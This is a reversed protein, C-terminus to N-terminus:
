RSGTVYFYFKVGIVIMAIPFILRGLCGSELKAGELEPDERILQNLYKKVQRDDTQPDAEIILLNVGLSQGKGGGTIDNIFAAFRYGNASKRVIKEAFGANLYGLQQGNGRLVRVANPIM